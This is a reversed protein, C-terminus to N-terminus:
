LLRNLGGGLGKEQSGGGFGPASMTPISPSRFRNSTRKVPIAAYLPRYYEFHQEGHILGERKFQLDPIVGYDFTRSFTPPAIIRGYRTSRAYEEDLSKVVM